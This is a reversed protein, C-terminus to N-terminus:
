RPWTLPACSLATTSLAFRTDRSSARGVMGTAIGEREVDVDGIVAIAFAFDVVVVVVFVVVVDITSNSM